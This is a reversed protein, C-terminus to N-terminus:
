KGTLRGLYKEVPTWDGRKATLAVYGDPRVLTIADDAPRIQPELLDPFRAILSVNQDPSFLAFRAASGSGIPHDTSRPPM